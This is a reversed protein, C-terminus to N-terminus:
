ANAGARAVDAKGSMVCHQLIRLKHQHNQQIYIKMHYKYSIYIIKVIASQTRIIMAM